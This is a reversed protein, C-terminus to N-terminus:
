QYAIEMPILMLNPQQHPDQDLLITDKYLHALLSWVQVWLCVSFLLIPVCLPLCRCALSLSWLCVRM